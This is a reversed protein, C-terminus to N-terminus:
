FKYDFVNFKKEELIIKVKQEIKNKLEYQELESFQYFMSKEDYKKLERILNNKDNIEIAKLLFDKNIKIDYFDLIIMIYKELEKILDEYKILVFSQPENKRMRIFKDWFNFFKVTEELKLQIAMQILEDEWNNKKSVFRHNLYLLASSSISKIPDRVLIIPKIKAFNILPSNQIPFHVYNFFKTTLNIFDQNLFNSTKKFDQHNFTFHEPINYVFSGSEILKPTGDGRNYLQELYSDLIGNVIHTGSRPLTCILKINKEDLNINNIKYTAKVLKFFYKFLSYWYDFIKKSM